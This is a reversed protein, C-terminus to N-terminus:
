SCLFFLSLFDRCCARFVDRADVVEPHSCLEEREKVVLGSPSPCEAGSNWVLVIAEIALV